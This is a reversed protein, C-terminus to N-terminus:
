KKKGWINMSKKINSRINSRRFVPETSELGKELEIIADSKRFVTGEDNEEPNNNNNIDKKIDVSEVIKKSSTPNRLKM